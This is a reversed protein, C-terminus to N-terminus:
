LDLTNYKGNCTWANYIKLHDSLMLALSHGFPWLACRRHFTGSTKLSFICFPLHPSNAWYFFPRNSIHMIYYLASFTLKVIRMEFLVHCQHTCCKETCHIGCRIHLRAQISFPVDLKPLGGTFHLVALVTGFLLYSQIKIAFAIGTTNNVFLTIDRQTWRAYQYWRYM